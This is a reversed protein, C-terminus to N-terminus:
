KPSTKTDSRAADSNPAPSPHASQDPQKNFQNKHRIGKRPDTRKRLHVMQSKDMRWGGHVFCIWDIKRSVCRQSEKRKKGTSTVIAEAKDFFMCPSSHIIIHKYRKLASLVVLFYVCM